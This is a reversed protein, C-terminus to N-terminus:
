TTRLNDRINSLPPPASDAGGGAPRPNFSHMNVCRVIAKLSVNTIAMGSSLPRFRWLRACGALVVATDEPM